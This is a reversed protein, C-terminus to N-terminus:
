GATCLLLAKKVMPIKYSVIPKINLSLYSKNRKLGSLEKAQYLMSKKKILLYIKQIKM